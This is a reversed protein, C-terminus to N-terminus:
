DFHSKWMKCSIKLVYLPKVFNYLSEEFKEKSLRKPQLIHLQGAPSAIFYTNKVDQFM